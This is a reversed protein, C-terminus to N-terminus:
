SAYKEIKYTQMLQKPKLDAPIHTTSVHLAPLLAMMLSIMLDYPTRESHTYNLAQKLLAPFVVKHVHGNYEHPNDGDFFIKAAELQAALEFPSASETGPKLVPNRKHPDVAPSWYLCDICDHQHFYGYFHDGASIEINVKCGYLLCVKIIEDYLHQVLRTRGTYMAVPYMKKRDFVCIAGQSGDEAFGIRFTDVGVCYELTNKPVVVGNYFEFKNKERPEEFLLWKGNDDDMWKVTREKTDKQGPYLGKIIKIEEILRVRRLPVPSIELSEIQAVVNKENFECEGTAFAFMDWIELPYDRRHDMLEKGELGERENKISTIAGETIWEGDNGMVPEVPDEIVSEGYKDICGAYGEYAPDFIRVIRSPTKLGYPLGTKKNIANQDANEWFEMYNEGGKDKPNVTTPFYGFGVKKKGETLCSKAKSWYTKVNVKEWKGFEDGLFYSVRGSDYSNLTTPQSDIFSNLGERKIPVGKKKNEVPKRFRIFNDSNSDFEEVFCPLIGKFGRMFLMSFIKKVSEDNYSIMGGIQEAKRGCVWWAWFTGETTAGKRRSKGRALGLVTPHKWLFEKIIFIKRTWNRYEPPKGNELTWYNVYGYHSGPIFTLVGKIMAYVGDDMRKNEREVWKKQQETYTHEKNAIAILDDDTFPVQTKRFFQEDIPLESFLIEEEDILEGDETVYSAKLDRYEADIGQIHLTPM